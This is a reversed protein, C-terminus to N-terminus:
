SAVGDLFSVLCVQLHLWAYGETLCGRGVVTRPWSQRDKERSRLIVPNEEEEEEGEPWKIGWFAM